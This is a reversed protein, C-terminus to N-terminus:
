KYDRSKSPIGQEKFFSAHKIQFISTQHKVFYKIQLFQVAGGVMAFCGVLEACYDGFTHLKVKTEDKLKDQFTGRFRAVLIPAFRNVTVRRVM